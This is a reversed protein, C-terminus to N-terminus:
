LSFNVCCQTHDRMAAADILEIEQLGQKEKSRRESNGQWHCLTDRWFHM